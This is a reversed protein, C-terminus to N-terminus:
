KKAKKAKKAKKKPSSEKIIVQASYKIQCPGIHRAEFRCGNTEQCLCRHDGRHGKPLTCWKAEYPDFSVAEPCIGQRSPLAAADAKEREYEM